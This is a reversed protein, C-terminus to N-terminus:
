DIQWVILHVRYLGAAEEAGVDAEYLWDILLPCVIQFTHQGFTLLGFDFPHWQLAFSRGAAFKYFATFYLVHGICDFQCCVRVSMCVCM